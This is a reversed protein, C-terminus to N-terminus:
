GDLCYFFMTLCPLVEVLLATLESRIICWGSKKSCRYSIDFSWRVKKPKTTGKKQLPIRYSDVFVYLLITQLFFFVIFHSIKINRTNPYRFIITFTLLLLVYIYLTLSVGCSSVSFNRWTARHLLYAVPSIIWSPNVDSLHDRLCIPRWFEICCSSWLVQHASGVYHQFVSLLPLLYSRVTNPIM